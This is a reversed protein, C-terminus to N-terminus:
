AAREWADRCEADCWRREDDVIEDCYHCRGNPTPGTPRRITAAAQRALEARDSAIDLADPM